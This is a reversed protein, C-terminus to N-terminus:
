RERYEGVSQEILEPARCPGKFWGDMSEAQQYVGVAVLRSLDRMGLYPFGLITM